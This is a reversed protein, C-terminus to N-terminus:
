IDLDLLNISLIIQFLFLFLFLLLYFIFFIKNLKSGKNADCSFDLKDSLKTLKFKGRTDRACALCITKKKKKIREHADETTLVCSYGM